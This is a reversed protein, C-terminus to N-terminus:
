QWCYDISTLDWVRAEVQKIPDFDHSSDPVQSDLLEILKDTIQLIKIMVGHHPHTPFWILLFYDGWGRAIHQEGSRGGWCGEALYLLVEQPGLIITIIITIAIIIILIEQLGQQWLNKKCCFVSIKKDLGHGFCHLAQLRIHKPFIVPHDGFASFNM